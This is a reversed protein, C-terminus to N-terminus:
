VEELRSRLAAEKEGMAGLGRGLAAVDQTAPLCAHLCAPLCALLCAPLCASMQSVVCFLSMEIPDFFLFLLLLFTSPLGGIISPSMGRSCRLWVPM